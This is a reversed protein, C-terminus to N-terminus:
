GGPRSRGAMVAASTRHTWRRVILGAGRLGADGRPSEREPSHSRSWRHRRWRRGPRGGRRGRHAHPRPPRPPTTPTPAHHAHHAHHARPSLRDSRRHRSKPAAARETRALLDRLSAWPWGAADRSRESTMPVMAAVSATRRCGPGRPEPDETRGLGPV